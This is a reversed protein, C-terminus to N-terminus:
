SRISTYLSEFQDGFAEISFHDRAHAHGAIGLAIAQNRNALVQGILNALSDCKGPEVLFGTEQDRVIEQLGGIDSAIVAVGNMQAEAAILGFPEDWLSPVCVVWAKRILELIADHTLHGPFTVSHGLALKESFKELAPRQPGDGAIILRCAPNQAFVIAFARLLIEAGKETVLRGAFVVLPHDSMRDRPRVVQTGPYIVAANRLQGRGFEDLQNSVSRSIAIVRTFAGRWRRDLAMQGMVPLWDHLPLCRSRLCSIGPKNTCRHGGPTRRTGLPCVARNWLAYYVSPVGRIVPLIWPSLQTLYLNVHVIDPRFQRLVRRLSFAARLNICQNITRLPGVTGFCEYDPDISHCSARANAVFLRVDHGRRRLEERLSGTIMEAGGTASGYDNLLLIKM